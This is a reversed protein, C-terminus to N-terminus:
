LEWGKRYPMSVYDNAADVNTFKMDKQNWDLEQGALRIAVAGILLFETLPGGYEFNSTAPDGGKAAEIFDGSHGHKSRPISKEPKEYDKGPKMLENDLNFCLPTGGYDGSTKLYGKSGVYLCGSVRLPSKKSIEEPCDPKKGGSYWVVKLDGFDGHAPVDYSIKAQKPYTEKTMGEQEAVVKLTDTGGLDAAWFPADFTHCGMDGLAGTGFDWAGRWKFPHLGDHYERFPRPGIWAEWDLHDPVPKTPGRDVGQPWVPRNTWAHVEKLDGIIGARVHEVIIRNHENSHGQNGVQSAVKADLVAKRLARSEGITYTMPKECYVACGKAVARLAANAHNHDPTAVVCANIDGIEDFLKRYDTYAKAEHKDDKQLRTQVRGLTNRDADCIAAIHGSGSSWGVHAGGRGGVGILAYNLKENQAYTKVLDPRLFMFAGVGAASGKLVNRRSVQQDM